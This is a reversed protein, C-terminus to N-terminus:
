WHVNVQLGGPGKLLFKDAQLNEARWAAVIEDGGDKGRTRPPSTAPKRIRSSPEPRTAPRM